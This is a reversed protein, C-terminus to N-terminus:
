NLEKMLTVDDAIIYGNYMLPNNRLMEILLKLVQNENQLQEVTENYPNEDTTTEGYCVNIPEIERSKMQPNSSANGVNVNVSPKVNVKVNPTSELKNLSIMASM